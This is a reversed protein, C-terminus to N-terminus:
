VPTVDTGDTIGGFRCAFASRFHDQQCVHNGVIFGGHLCGGFVDAFEGAGTVSFAKDGYRWFRAFGEPKVAAAGGGDGFM